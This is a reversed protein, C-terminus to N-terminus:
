YFCFCSFCAGHTDMRFIVGIGSGREAAGDNQTESEVHQVIPTATARGVQQKSKGRCGCCDFEGAIDM